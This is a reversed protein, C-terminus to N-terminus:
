GGLLERKKRKKFEELTGAECAQMFERQLNIVNGTIVLSEKLNNNFHAVRCNQLYLGFSLGLMIAYLFFNLKTM